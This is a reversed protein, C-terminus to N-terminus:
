RCLNSINVHLTSKNLSLNHYLVIADSCLVYKIIYILKGLNPIMEPHDDVLNNLLATMRMRYIEPVFDELNMTRIVEDDSWTESAEEEEEENSINYSKLSNGTTLTQNLILESESLGRLVSMLSKIPAELIYLMFGPYVILLGTINYPRKFQSIMNLIFEVFM